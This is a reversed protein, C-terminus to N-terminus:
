MGDTSDEYGSPIVPRGLTASIQDSLAANLRFNTNQAELFLKMYDEFSMTITANQEEQYQMLIEYFADAMAKSAEEETLAQMGGMGYIPPPNGIYGYNLSENPIAGIEQAMREIEEPTNVISGTKRNFFITPNNPDSVSDRILDINRVTELHIDDPFYRIAAYYALLDSLGNPRLSGDPNLINYRKNMDEFLESSIGKLKNIIDLSQARRLIETLGYGLKDEPNLYRDLKKQDDDTLTGTAQKNLLEMYEDLSEKFRESDSDFGIMPRDWTTGQFPDDWRITDESDPSETITGEFIDKIENRSYAEDALDIGMARWRQANREIDLDINEQHLEEQAQENQAIQANSEALAGWMEAQEESTKGDLFGENIEKVAMQVIPDNVNSSVLGYLSSINEGQNDSVEIGSEALLEEGSESLAGTEVAEVFATTYPNNAKGFAGELQPVTPIPNDETAGWLEDIEGKLRENEDRLSNIEEENTAIKGSLEEISAELEAVIESSPEGAPTTPIDDPRDDKFADNLADFGMKFVLGLGAIGTAIGSVVGLISGPLGSLFSLPGKPNALQGMAELQTANNYQMNKSVEQVNKNTVEINDNILRVKSDVSDKLTYVAELSKRTSSEIASYLDSVDSKDFNLFESSLENSAEDYGLTNDYPIPETDKIGKTIETNFQDYPTNPDPKDGKSGRKFVNEILSSALFGVLHSALFM